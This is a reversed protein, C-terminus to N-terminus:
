RRGSGESTARLAKERLEPLQSALDPIDGFADTTAEMSQHGMQEHALADAIAIIRALDTAGPGAPHHHFLVAQVISDPIGWLGLLLAGVDAHTVGWAEYEVEHHPLEREESQTYVEDLLHAGNTQLMLSGLDHLLGASFADASEAPAAIAGAIRATRLGHDRHVEMSLKAGLPFEFATFTHLALMLDRVMDLGLFSVAEAASTVGRRLGFIPSNVVQLMKACLAPDQKVIEGVSAATSKDSALAERLELCVRPLSPLRDSGTVVHKLTPHTMLRNFRGACEIGRELDRMECPKALTLHAVGLSKLATEKDTQGSLVIRGMAPRHEKVWLLLQTGDMEPMRMDSVIVDFADAQLSEVAELASSAFSMKWRARFRRLREELAQLVFPEDDVLM